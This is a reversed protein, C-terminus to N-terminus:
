EGATGSGRAARRRTAAEAMRQRAEAAIDATAEPLRLTVNADEATANLLQKNVRIPAGTGVALNV